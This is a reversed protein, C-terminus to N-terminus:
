MGSAILMYLALWSTSEIGVDRSLVHQLKSGAVASLVM